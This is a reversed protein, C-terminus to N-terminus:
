LPKVHRCWNCCIENRLAECQKLPMKCKFCPEPDIDEVEVPMPVVKRIAEPVGRYGKVQTIATQAKPRGAEVPGELIEIRALLHQFQEQLILFSQELNQARLTHKASPDSKRKKAM